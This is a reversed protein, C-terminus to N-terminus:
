ISRVAPHITSGVNVVDDLVAVRAGALLGHVFPIALDSVVIARPGLSFGFCEALRPMKRAILVAVDPDFGRVRSILSRWAAHPFRRPPPAPPTTPLAVAMHSSRSSTM